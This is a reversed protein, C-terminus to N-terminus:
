ADNQVLVPPPKETQIYSHRAVLRLRSGFICDVRWRENKRQRISATLEDMAHV